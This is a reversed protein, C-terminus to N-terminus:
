PHVSSPCTASVPGPTLPSVRLPSDSKRNCVLRSHDSITQWTRLEVFAGPKVSLPSNLLASEIDGAMSVPGNYYEHLKKATCVIYWILAVAISTDHNLGEDCVGM